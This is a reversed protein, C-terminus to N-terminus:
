VQGQVVQMHEFAHLCLIRLMQTHADTRAYTCAHMRMRAHAQTHACTHTCVHTCTHMHANAFAHLTHVRDAFLCHRRTRIPPHSETGQSFRRKQTQPCHKCGHTSIHAFTHAEIYKLSAHMCMLSTIVVCLNTYLDGVFSMGAIGNSRRRVLAQATM